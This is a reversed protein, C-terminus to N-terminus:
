STERERRRARRETGPEPRQRPRSPGRTASSAPPWRHPLLCRGLLLHSKERDIPPNPDHPVPKSCSVCLLSTCIVSKPIFDTKAPDLGLKLRSTSLVQPESTYFCQKSIMQLLEVCLFLTEEILTLDCIVILIM